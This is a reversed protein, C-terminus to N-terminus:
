NLKSMMRDLFETIEVFVCGSTHGPKEKGCFFCYHSQTSFNRDLVFCGGNLEDILRRLLDEASQEGTDVNEVKELRVQINNCHILTFIPQEPQAIWNDIREKINCSLEEVTEPDMDEPLSIILMTKQNMDIKISSINICM